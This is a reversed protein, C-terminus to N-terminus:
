IYLSILEKIIEERYRRCLNKQSKIAFVTLFLQKRRKNKFKLRKDLATLLQSGENKAIIRTNENYICKGLHFVASFLTKRLSIAQLLELLSLDIRNDYLKLSFDAIEVFKELVSCLCLLGCDSVRNNDFNLEIKKLFGANKSIKRLLESFGADTVENWYFDLSLWQLNQLKELFNALIECCDDSVGCNAFSLRLFKLTSLNELGQFLAFFQSFCLSNWDFVLELKLMQAFLRLSEGLKEISLAKVGCWSFNLSLQQLNKLSTLSEAFFRLGIGGIYNHQLDLSFSCLSSFDEIKKSFLSLDADNLFNKSLDLSLFQLKPSSLALKELFTLFVAFKKYLDLASLPFRSSNPSTQSNKLTESLNCAKEPPKETPKRCQQELEISSKRLTQHKKQPLLKPNQKLKISPSSKIKNKNSKTTKM